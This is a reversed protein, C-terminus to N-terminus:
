SQTEPGPANLIAAREADTVTVASLAWDVERGAAVALLFLVNEQQERDLAQIRAVREQQEPTQDTDSM